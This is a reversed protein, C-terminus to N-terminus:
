SSVDTSLIRDIVEQAKDRDPTRVILIGSSRVLSCKLDDVHFVLMHATDVDPEAFARVREAVDDFAGDQFRAKWNGSRCEEM